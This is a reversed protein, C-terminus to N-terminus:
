GASPSPEAVLREPTSALDGGVQELLARAAVRGSEVMRDLQHFELMGVGMSPPSIVYAGTARAREVAGRSGIMMTRLLTEGLAPVRLPRGDGTPRPGAGLGINVAVVPGEDRETLLEVPLNDLVGGDVLLRGDARLPPFLVPLRISAAVAQWLVGRRHVYPARALLDTSVCRFQRPLDPIRTEEGMRRRLAANARRGKAMATIPLTYDGFPNRRVFEEYCIAELEDADYGYAHLGAVIAGLSAGAVRDVVLGADAFEHLVPV